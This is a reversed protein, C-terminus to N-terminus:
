ISEELAKKYDCLMKGEHNSGKCKRLISKQNKSRSDGQGPDKGERPVDGKERRGGAM